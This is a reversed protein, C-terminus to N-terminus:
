QSTLRTRAREILRKNGVYVPTREHLREPDRELISGTGDFSAGGASEIIYAIPNGEFQLRLKGAPQDVLGPYAFIGGYELVQNIDAVFAGGYRLKLEHRIEDAFARFATPWATDGGGFGYVVPDDPLQCDTEIEEMTGDHIEYETVTGDRATTLTTIPGFVLMGAGVLAQGPAPLPQDYVGVITGMPNNSALNSSGDLPDLVVSYPAEEDIETVTEREESAIAGVGELTRLRNVLLEDVAVDAAVQTDGTPNEGVTQGQRGRLTQRIEPASKALTEFITRIPTQM